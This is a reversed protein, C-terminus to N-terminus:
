CPFASYMPVSTPEVYPMFDFPSGGCGAVFRVDRALLRGELLRHLPDAAEAGFDLRLGPPKHAVLQADLRVRHARRHERHVRHVGVLLHPAAAVRRVKKDSNVANMALM